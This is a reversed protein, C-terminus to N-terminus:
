RGWTIRCKEKRKRPWRGSSGEEDVRLKRPSGMTTKQIKGDAGYQCMSQTPPKANGKLTLQTTEMWQYQRLKQQNEAAAQKVAAVKQQLEAGTGAGTQAVALRTAALIIVAIFLKPRDIISLTKGDSQM